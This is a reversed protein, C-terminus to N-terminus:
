ITSAQEPSNGDSGPKQFKETEEGPLKNMQDILTEIEQGVVPDLLAVDNLNKFNFLTGNDDKELNHEVICNTFEYQQVALFTLTVKVDEQNDARGISASLERRKLVQGYNLKKLVVYAGELTKLDFRETDVSAVAKPM